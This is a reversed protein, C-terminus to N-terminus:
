NMQSAPEALETESVHCFLIQRRIEDTRRSADPTAWAWATSLSHYLILTEEAEKIPMEVSRAMYQRTQNDATEENAQWKALCLRSTTTTSPYSIRNERDMTRIFRSPQGIALLRIDM